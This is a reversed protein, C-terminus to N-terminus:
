DRDIKILSPLKNSIKREVFKTRKTKGSIPKMRSKNQFDLFISWFDHSSTQAFRRLEITIAEFKLVMLSEQRPYFERDKSFFIKSFIRYM